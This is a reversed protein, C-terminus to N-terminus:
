LPPEGCRIETVDDIHVIYFMDGESVKCPFMLLPIEAEMINGNKDTLESFAYGSEVMDVAGLFAVLAVIAHKM